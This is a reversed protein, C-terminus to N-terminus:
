APGGMDVTHVYSTDTDTDTDTDSDPNPKPQENSHKEFIGHDFLRNTLQIKPRPKVPPTTAPIIEFVANCVLTLKKYVFHPISNESYNDKNTNTLSTLYALAKIADAKSFYHKHHWDSLYSEAERYSCVVSKKILADFYDKDEEDLAILLLVLLYKSPSAGHEFLIRAGVRNNAELRTQLTKVDEALMYLNSSLERLMDKSRGFLNDYLAEIQKWPIISATAHKLSDQHNGLLSILKKLQKIDNIVSYEYETVNIHSERNTFLESPIDALSHYYTTKHNVEFYSHEDQIRHVLQQLTFHIKSFIFKDLEFLNKNYQVKSDLSQIRKTVYDKIARNEDCENESFRTDVLKRAIESSLYLGKARKVDAETQIISFEWEDSLLYQIIEISGKELAHTIPSKGNNLLTILLEILISKKSGDISQLLATPDKHSTLRRFDEVNGTGAIEYLQTQLANKQVNRYVSQARPLEANPTPATPEQQIASAQTHTDNQNEDKKTCNNNNM